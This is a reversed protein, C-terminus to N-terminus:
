FFVEQSIASADAPSEVSSCEFFSTGLCNSFSLHNKNGYIGGLNKSHDCTLDMKGCISCNHVVLGNAVFCHADTVEQICYVPELIDNKCISVIPTWTLRTEDLLTLKERYEPLYHSISDRLDPYADFHGYCLRHTDKMEAHRLGPGGSTERISQAKRLLEIGGPIFGSWDSHTRSVRNDRLKASRPCDTLHKNILAAFNDSNKGFLYLKYADRKTVKSGLIEVEGASHEYVKSALGLRAMLLQVERLLGMSVSTFSINGGAENTGVGLFYGTLFAITSERDARLVSWPVKKADANEFGFGVYRLFQSLGTGVIRSSVENAKGCKIDLDFVKKFLNAFDEQNAQDGDSHTIVPCTSDTHSGDSVLYGLIKALDPNMEKPFSVKLSSKEMVRRGYTDQYEGVSLNHAQRLHPHLQGYANNCIACIINGEEDIGNELNFEFKLSEPFQTKGNASFAVFDGKRLDKAEVWRIGMESDLVMFPHTTNSKVYNGCETAISLTESFGQHISGNTKKFGQPTEVQDSSNVQEIPVLGRGTSVLSGSALPAFYNVMAGMSYGTRKKKIIDDVLKYDKTRDWLTILNIKWIDYKPVYILSADPIIGKAQRPDQNCHDIHTPKNIFTQYVIRGQHPDFYTVEELPFAQMNRNAIGVTVIPLNAVMIYDELNPSINYAEAAAPLISLDIDIPPGGLNAKAMKRGNKQFVEYNKYLEATVGATVVSGTVIHGEPASRYRSPHM